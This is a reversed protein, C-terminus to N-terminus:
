IIIKAIKEGLEVAYNTGRDWPYVQQMNALYVNPLPTYHSPINRSYNKTIIPQAFNAKSIWSDIIDDERFKPNIKKLYPIYKKILKNKSYSFYEDSSNLYNGIYVINQNGYNKKNQFNTHEVICLYPHNQNINLWYVKQPLFPKKLSLILNQAGIGKFGLMRQKYSVPLQPTLKVFLPTPLTCIVGDFIEEKNNIKLSIKKQKSRIESVPTNYMIKGGNNEFDRAVANAFSLFGRKPYGLEPTRSKIRAWFWSSPIENSFNSFKKEMLPQWLVKWSNEGMLPRFLSETNIMELPQWFPNIKLLAIVGGTRLKSLLDLHSFKILNIPSDIQEITDKFYLSTNPRKFIIKHNVEKSLNIISNDTKFLHHYFIELPWDWNKNEFGVALGGPHKLSEYVTVNHGSKQLRLGATLGTFGAGIIAINKM